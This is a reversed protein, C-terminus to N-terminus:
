KSGGTKSGPANAYYGNRTRVTGRYGNLVVSIKRFTGDMATNTPLYALVYQSRIEHAIQPTIKDIEAVDKPYYDLGGSNGTLLKLAKKAQRADRPEEESLLGVAYILVESRQAKQVLQELTVVSTNDNGDTVVVLVKKERKAKEKAYDISLSIADRMATGGRSDLRDLAEELKKANNTFPQDLYPEDNFNVIFVEDDPNSAKVLALSAAAVKARKDRMSGSNDIIIGMSVPVDERRFIKIPQEVGNEYVKFASQPLNTILKGSKDLVSAYLVVLNTDSTFVAEDQPKPTPNSPQVAQQAFLHQAWLLSAAAAFMSIAGLFVPNNLRRM